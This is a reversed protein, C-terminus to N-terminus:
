IHLTYRHVDTHVYLHLTRAHIYTCVYQMYMYKYHMRIDLTPICKYHVDHARLTAQMYNQVTYYM